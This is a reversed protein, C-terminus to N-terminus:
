GGLGGPIGPLPHPRDVCPQARNLHADFARRVACSRAAGSRVAGEHPTGTKTLSLVSKWPSGVPWPLAAKRGFAARCCAGNTRCSNLLPTVTSPLVRSGSNPNLGVVSYSPASGTRLGHCM